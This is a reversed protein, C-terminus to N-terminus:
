RKRRRAIMGADQPRFGRPFRTEADYTAGRLDAGGLKADTLDAGHFCTARDPPAHAATAGRLDAGVLRARTFDAGQIDANRLDAGSLDADELRTRGGINDFGLNAHRLDAGRMNAKDFHAGRLDCRTMIAGELISDQFSAWYFDAESMDVHRLVAFMFNRGEHISRALSRDGPQLRITDPDDEPDYRDSM